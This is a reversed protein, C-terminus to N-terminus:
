IHSFACFCKRIYLITFISEMATKVLKKKNKNKNNPNESLFTLIKIKRAKRNAQTREAAETLSGTADEV